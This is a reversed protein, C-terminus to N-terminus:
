EEERLILVNSTGSIRWRVNSLSLVLTCCNLEQGSPSATLAAIVAEPLFHIANLDRPNRVTGTCVHPCYELSKQQSRAIIAYRM